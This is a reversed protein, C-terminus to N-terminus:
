GRVMADGMDQEIHKISSVTISDKSPPPPGALVVGVCVYLSTMLVIVKKM